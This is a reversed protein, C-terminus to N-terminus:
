LDINLKQMKYYLTSRPIKMLRAVKAKNRKHKLLLDAIYEKEQKAENGSGGVPCACEYDLDLFDQIDELSLVNSKNDVLVILREAFNKLERITGRWSHRTLLELLENDIEPLEREYKVAFEKMFGYLLDPIDEKRERLSPIKLRFVNLRYYLDERFKGERVMQELDRNCAALIRVDVNIAKEAGVREM